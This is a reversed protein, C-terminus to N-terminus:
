LELLCPSSTGNYILSVFAGLPRVMQGLDGAGGMRDSESGMHQGVVWDWRARVVLFALFCLQGKGPDGRATASVCVTEHGGWSSERREGM